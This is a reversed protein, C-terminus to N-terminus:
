AQAGFFLPSLPDVPIGGVRVELVLHAVSRPGVAPVRGLVQGRRVSEGARVRVGDVGLLDVEVRARGAIALVVEAGLAPGDRVARVTAAAPARVPSGAPAGLLLGDMQVERGSLPDVGPGFPLLIAGAVPYAFPPAPAAPADVRVDGHVPPWRWGRGDLGSRLAAEIRALLATAFAPM